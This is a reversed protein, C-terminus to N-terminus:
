KDCGVINHSYSGCGSQAGRLFSKIKGLLTKSELTRLKELETKTMPQKHFRMSRLYRLEQQQNYTMKGLSM